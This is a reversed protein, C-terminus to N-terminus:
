AYAEYLEKDFSFVYPSLYIGAAETKDMFKPRIGTPRLQGMVKSDQIGTQEFIDARQWPGEAVSLVPGGRNYM